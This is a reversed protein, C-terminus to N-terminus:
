RPKAAPTRKLLYMLLADEGLRLLSPVQTLAAQGYEGNKFHGIFDNNRMTEREQALFEAQAPLGLERSARRFKASEILDRTQALTELYQATPMHALSYLVDNDDLQLNSLANQVQRALDHNEFASVEENYAVWSRLSLLAGLTMENDNALQLLGNWFDRQYQNESHEARVKFEDKVLEANVSDADLLRQYERNVYLTDSTLKNVEAELKKGFESNLDIRSESEEINQRHTPTREETEVTEARMKDTSAKVNEKEADLLAVQKAALLNEAYTSSNSRGMQGSPGAIPSGAGAISSVGQNMLAPNLGAARMAMPANVISQYQNRLALDSAFRMNKQANAQAQENLNKQSYYQLGTDLLKEAASSGFQEVATLNEFGM